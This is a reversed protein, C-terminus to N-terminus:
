PIKARLALSPKAKDLSHDWYSQIKPPKTHLWANSKIIRKPGKWSPINQSETIWINESTSFVLSVSNPLWSDSTGITVYNAWNRQQPPPCTHFSLIMPTLYIYCNISCSQTIPAKWYLGGGGAQGHATVTASLFTVILSHHGRAWCKQQKPEARNQM